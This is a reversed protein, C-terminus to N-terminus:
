RRRGRLLVDLRNLTAQALAMHRPGGQRYKLQAVAAAALDEIERLRAVEGRQDRRESLYTASAVARILGRAEAAPVRELIVM